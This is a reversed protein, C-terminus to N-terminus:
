RRSARNSLARAYVGSYIASTKEWSHKQNVWTSGQRELKWRLDHNDLLDTLVEALAAADGAPFLLGTHGNKILERHGGIDSAVLAKSMAMAELPKLPTVLETHRSAHRPYALIDVLAYVGPIRDPRIRGPMIVKEELNLRKIQAKLEAEMRGGGVLLLLTDSRTKTLCAVADTLLDLGEYRAFSGIYGIVKKGALKWAKKYAADPECHKADDLNVGNFVINIKKSPIGREILDNKLGNCIVVVQDVKRCVWTEIFRILKYKWSNQRYTGNAVAGEEWFSRIEYVVPIGLKRGVRLTALANFVPSHAHLLDPKEVEVVERMRKTLAVVLRLEAELPFVGRPVAETRYYRLGGIIEEDEWHGKWSVKRIPATLAVPKCGRKLQAQFINHSRIAYGSLLPLSQNLIHLIKPSLNDAIM